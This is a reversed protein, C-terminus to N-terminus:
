ETPFDDQNTAAEAKPPAHGAAGKGGAMAGAAAGGVGRQYISVYRYYVQLSMCSLSTSYLRGGQGLFACRNWSGSEHGQTAQTKILSDRMPVNWQQWQPGEGNTYQFMAQNAYYTYYMNDLNPGSNALFTMGQQLAPNNHNAGLYMRSLLGIATTAPGKGPGNYGYFAGSDSQVRDLGKKVREITLPPVNLYALHGSKLAMIQWGSVSTDGGGGHYGWFHATESQSAIIWNLAAQAPAKLKSDRSMGYAETLAITALGHAYM